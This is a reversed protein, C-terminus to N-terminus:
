ADAGEGFAAAIEARRETEEPLHVRMWDLVGSWQANCAYLEEEALEDARYRRWAEVAFPKLV